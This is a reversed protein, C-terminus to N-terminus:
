DLFKKANDISQVASEASTKLAELLKPFADLAAIRISRSADLLKLWKNVKVVEGKQALAAPGLPSPTTTARYATRRVYLAWGDEGRAYGLATETTVPIAQKSGFPPVLASEESQLPIWVELGLNLERLTTQFQAILTAVEDSKENLHKAVERLASLQRSLDSENM